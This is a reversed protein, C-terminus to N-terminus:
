ARRGYPAATDSRTDPLFAAALTEDLTLRLSQPQASRRPFDSRFHSGRSEERRLAANTIMLAVLAPDSAADHRKALPLLTSVAERLMEGNRKVGLSRSLLPRLSLPDPAPNG